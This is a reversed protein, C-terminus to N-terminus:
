GTDANPKEDLVECKKHPDENPPPCSGETRESFDGGGYIASELAGQAVPILRVGQMYPKEAHHAAGM